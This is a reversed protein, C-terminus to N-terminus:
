TSVASQALLQATDAANVEYLLLRATQCTGAKQVQIIVRTVGAMPFIISAHYSGDSAATAPYDQPVMGAMGLMAVEVRM